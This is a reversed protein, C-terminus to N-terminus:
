KGRGAGSLRSTLKPRSPNGPLCPRGSRRAAQLVLADRVDEADRALLVDPQDVGDGPGGDPVHQGAVLLARREHGLDVAPQGPAGPHARGREAGPRDVQQEAGRVRGGVGRRQDRQRRLDAHVAAELLRVLADVQHRHEGRDGLPRRQHRRRARHGLHDALRELQGLGLPRARDVQGDRLVHLLGRRLTLRQRHVHRPGVLRGAPLHLPRRRQQTRRSARDHQGAVAGRAGPRARGQAAEGLHQADRHRGREVALAHEGVVVRQRQARHPEHPVVVDVEAEVAGVEDDGDAVLQLLEVRRPDVRVAVGLDDVQVPEGGLHVRVVVHGDPQVGVDAAAQVRQGLGDARAGAPATPWTRARSAASSARPWRSSRKGSAGALITASVLAAIRRSSM